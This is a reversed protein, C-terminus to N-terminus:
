DLEALKQKFEEVREATNTIGMSDAITEIFPMAQELTFPRGIELMPHDKAEPVMEFLFEATKPNDLLEGITTEEFSYKAM